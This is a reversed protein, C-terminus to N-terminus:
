NPRNWKEYSEPAELKVLRTQAKTKIDQEPNLKILEKFTDKARQQLGYRKDSNRWSDRNARYKNKFIGFLEQAERLTARLRETAEQSALESTEGKIVETKAEQLCVGGELPKILPFDCHASFDMTDFIPTSKSFVVEKNVRWGEIVAKLYAINYDLIQDKLENSSIVGGHLKKRIDRAKNMEKLATCFDRQLYKIYAMLAHSAAMNDHVQKGYKQRKIKLSRNCYYLARDHNGELNYAWGLVHYSVAQRINAEKPSLSNEIDRAKRLKSKAKTPKNNMCFIIGQTHLAQGRVSDYAMKDAPSETKSKIAVLDQVFTNIEKNLDLNFREIRSRTKLENLRSYQLDISEPNENQRCSVKAFIELAQERKEICFYYTGVLFCAKMYYDVAVIAAINNPSQILDLILEHLKAFQMYEGIYYSGLELSFNRKIVPSFSFSEDKLLHLVHPELLRFREKAQNDHKHYKFLYTLKAILDEQYYQSRSSNRDKEILFERVTTHMTFVDKAHSIIFSNEYLLKISNRVKSESSENMLSKILRYSLNDIKLYALLHLLEIITEKSALANYNIDMIGNEPLSKLRGLIDKANKSTKELYDILQSLALPNGESKELIQESISLFNNDGINYLSIFKPRKAVYLKIEEINFPGLNITKGHRSEKLPIDDRMTLLCHHKHVAEDISKNISRQLAIFSLIKEILFYDNVNDFIFLYSANSIEEFMDEVFNFFFKREIESTDFDDEQKFESTSKALKVLRRYYDAKVGLKESLNIMEDKLVQYSRASIWCIHKYNSQCSGVVDYALRTKGVGGQGKITVVSADELGFIVEAIKARREIYYDERKPLIVQINNKEGSVCIKIHCALDSQFGRHSMMSLHNVDYNCHIVENTFLRNWIEVEERNAHDVYGFDRTKYLFVSGDQNKIEGNLHFGAAALLHSRCTRLICLMKEESETNKLKKFLDGFFIEIKEAPDLTLDLQLCDREPPLFAKVKDLSKGLKVMSVAFVVSYINSLGVNKGTLSERIADPLPPDFLGLWKVKKGLKDLKKKLAMAYLGGFSFGAISLVLNNKLHENKNLAYITYDVIEELNDCCYKDYDKFKNKGLMFPSQMTFVNCNVGHTDRLSPLLINQYETDSGTLPSLLLLNERGEEYNGILNLAAYFAQRREVEKALYAISFVDIFKSVQEPAAVELSRNKKKNNIGKFENCREDKKSQVSIKNHTKVDSAFSMQGFDVGYERSLKSLIGTYDLSNLAFSKFLDTHYDEKGGIFFGTHQVIIKLVNKEIATLERDLPEGMDERKLYVCDELNNEKFLKMYYPELKVQQSPMKFIGESADIIYIRRPRSVWSLNELFAVVDEHSIKQKIQSLQDACELLIVALLYNAVNSRNEERYTDPLVYVYSGKIGRKALFQKILEAIGSPEVRESGIKLQSDKRYKFVFDGKDNVSALDGTLYASDYVEGDNFEYPGAFFVKETKERWPKNEKLYGQSLGNGFIVIEGEMLLETSSVAEKIREKFIDRKKKDDVSEEQDDWAQILCVRTNQMNEGLIIENEGKYLKLMNGITAETPGYGILINRQGNDYISKYLDSSVAAGATIINKLTSPLRDKLLFLVSPVLLATAVENTKIIKPLRDLFDDDVRGPLVLTVGFLMMLLEVYVADFSQVGAQLMRSGPELQLYEQHDIAIDVLRTHNILVPKAKGSTGSTWALYALSDVSYESRSIKCNGLLEDISRSIVQTEASCPLGKAYKDNDTFLFHFHCDSWREGVIKPTIKNQDVLTIAVDCYWAALLVIIWDPKTRSYCIAAIPKNNSYSFGKINEETIVDQLYGALKIAKENLKKFTSSNSYEEESPNKAWILAINDPYKEVTEKWKEIFHMIERKIIIRGKVLVSSIASGYYVQLKLKNFM